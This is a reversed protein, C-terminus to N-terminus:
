CRTAQLDQRLRRRHRAAARHHRRPVRRRGRVLRHLQDARGRRRRPLDRGAGEAPALGLPRRRGPPRPRPPAARAGHRARLRGALRRPRQRRDRQRPELRHGVSAAATQRVSARVRERAAHALAPTHSTWAGPADVPGVGQWVMIGARDLRELLPVSLAHQARTANAGLPRCSACSRTWTPAPSRTATVRPTRTSRRATCGCASATSCCPVATAASRACASATM